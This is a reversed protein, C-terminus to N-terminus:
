VFSKGHFFSSGFEGSESPSFFGFQWIKKILKLLQYGLICFSEPKKEVKM